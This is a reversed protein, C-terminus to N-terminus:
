RWLYRNLSISVTSCNWGRACWPQDCYWDKRGETSDSGTQSNKPLRYILDSLSNLFSDHFDLNDMIKGDLLWSHQKLLRLENIILASIVEDPVLHGKDMFTKAMLGVETRSSIQSRLLDSIATLSKYNTILLFPVPYADYRRWVFAEDQFRERYTFINNGQGVSTGRTYNCPLREFTVCVHSNRAKLSYRFM